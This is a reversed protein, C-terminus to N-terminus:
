RVLLMKHTQTEENTTLRFFYLGSATEGGQRNRGDWLVSHSGASFVRDGLTRVLRGKVDYVELRIPGSHALEFSITTRPNFPNPANGVLRTVSPLGEPAASASNDTVMLNLGWSNFVGLAGLQHDAVTMTWTGNVPEDMFDDLSGPGDVFLSTPWNGVLNDATAGTRNHLTVTTGQPSTLTVTLHGIAFHSINGDVSIGLV